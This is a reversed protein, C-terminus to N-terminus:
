LDSGRPSKEGNSGNSHMEGPYGHPSIEGTLRNGCNKSMQNGPKTRSASRGMAPLGKIPAEGINLLPPKGPTTPCTLLATQSRRRTKAGTKTTKLSLTTPIWLRPTMEWLSRAQLLAPHMVTLKASPTPPCDEM